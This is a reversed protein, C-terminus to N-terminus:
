LCVDCIAAMLGCCTLRWSTPGTVVFCFTISGAAVTLAWVPLKATSCRVIVACLMRWDTALYPWSKFIHGRRSILRCHHGEIYALARFGDWNIEYLWDPRDFPKPVSVLPMPHVVGLM